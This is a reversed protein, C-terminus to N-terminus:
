MSTEFASHTNGTKNYVNRIMHSNIIKLDATVVVNPM